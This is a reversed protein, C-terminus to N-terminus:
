RAPTENLTSIHEITVPNTHFLTVTPMPTPLVPLSTGWESAGAAEPVM